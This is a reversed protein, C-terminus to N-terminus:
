EELQNICVKIDELYGVADVEKTWYNADNSAVSYFKMFVHKTCLPVFSSKAKEEQGILLKGDKTLRPIAILKGKDKGIIVRRKGSFIANGYGRNTSSDLLAYNWLRNKEESTWPEQPPFVDQVQAYLEQKRDGDSENFYATIAEQIKSDAGLYINLLWEKQTEESDEPNTTNSNIHEVDWNEQKYIHFPFKYFVGIKYKENEVNNRNQNIITQINHFLLIPKCKRKDSGDEKYQYELAERLTSTKSYDLIVKKIQVKLWNVFAEKDENPKHWENLLLHISYKYEILYGVYHYLELDNYWEMFTQFYGKVERWCETINARNIKFYEYFYRFTKYEDTGILRLKEEMLGLKNQDCILDFIFDIRTPRKYGVGKLFLWFEDNQLTYEIADWESAIEQQRLRINNENNSGFNSRNLFLAKILEANTLSIKGINLRTFVKIPNEEMSEYWIFRINNAKDRSNEDLDHKLLTNCFDGRNVNPKELWKIITTYAMSMYYYDIYSEDIQQLNKIKNLFQRCDIGNVSRQYELEFLNTPLGMISIVDALASLILYITTLRQQGDIVEYWRDAVNLSYEQKKSDSIQKVVLPQVCYFEYDDHKKKSFEWIDNLLDTVQQSTWRYGRQYSPIFFHMGLLEKIAKLEIKNENITGM